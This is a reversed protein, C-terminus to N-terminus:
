GFRFWRLHGDFYEIRGLPRGQKSRGFFVEDPTRGKWASHPRDRTHGHMFDRCFRDLQAPGSLMWVIGFVTSKFTRFVREIRGNTWPHAPRTLTHAIGRTALAGEFDEARFVGGRDTLIREPAGHKRVADDLVRVVAACTPWAVREFAVLRSGHYDVIGLVWAPFIGLIWVLTLDAGWLRLPGTVRIRRPARRRDQQLAVVLDRRRMLIRRITERTARFDLVRQALLGLQGAGLLPQEVHLRVIEGEVNPPTRNWAPRARLRAPKPTGVDDRDAFCGDVIRRLSGLWRRWRRPARRRHEDVALAARLLGRLIFVCIAQHARLVLSLM